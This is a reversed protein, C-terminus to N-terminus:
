FLSLLIQRKKERELTESHLEHQGWIHSGGAESKWTSSNYNYWCPWGQGEKKKKFFFLQMNLLSVMHYENKKAHRIETVYYEKPDYM